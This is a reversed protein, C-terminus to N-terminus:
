GDHGVESLYHDWTDGQFALRVERAHAFAYERDAVIALVMLALDVISYRTVHAIRLEELVGRRQMENAGIWNLVGTVLVPRLLSENARFFPNTPISVWLKWFVAHIREDDVPKDRDILDDYVHTWFFADALFRLAEENGLFIERLRKEAALPWPPTRGPGGPNLPIPDAM